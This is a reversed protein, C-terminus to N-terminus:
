PQDAWAQMDSALDNWVQNYDWANWSGPTIFENISLTPYARDGEKDSVFIQETVQMVSTFSDKNRMEILDGLYYDVQYTYQSHQSLEGDFASMRRNKALEEKGRQIMKATADAPITDTIDDAKVFLVNRDFGNIDTPVDLDYVVQHGVPSVVYAVNKYLAITTLESTNHLNDMEASFIVAPLTTQHTTRDSGTYINFYLQSTDIGRVLRFGLSYADCLNKIAQYLDMPDIEYVITDSPEAITDTPFINTTLISPIVDGANLIGTICIDHFLTRAIDAPLGTLIWKPDTTLDTLAAMALRQKLILELSRGKVTLIEHGEDDESDEVTEIIMVRNSQSHALRLGTVLKRRNEQTSMTKLEFDGIDRHRETWILSEYGEVIEVRRYLSDLIYLEM